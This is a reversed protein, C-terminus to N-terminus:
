RNWARAAAEAVRDAIGPCLVDPLIAEENLEEASIGDALARAAAMKM